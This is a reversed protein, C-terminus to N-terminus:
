MADIRAALDEFVLRKAETLIQDSVGEQIALRRIAEDVEKARPNFEPNFKKLWWQPNFWPEEKKLREIFACIKSEEDAQHQTIVSFEQEVTLSCGLFATQILCSVTVSTCGFPIALAYTSSSNGNVEVVPKDPPESRSSWSLMSITQDQGY